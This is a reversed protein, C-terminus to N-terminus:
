IKNGFLGRNAFLFRLGLKSIFAGVFVLQFWVPVYEALAKFGDIVYAQMSPVFILTVITLVWLVMIEDILSNRANEQAIIDYKAETADLNKVREIAAMEKAEKLEAELERERIKAQQKREKLKLKTQKDLTFFDFIKEILKSIIPIKM